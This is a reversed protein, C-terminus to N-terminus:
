KVIVELLAEVIKDGLLQRKEPTIASLEEKLSKVSKVALEMAQISLQAQPAPNPISNDGEHKFLTDSTVQVPTALARIVDLDERRFFYCRSTAGRYAKVKGKIIWKRLTSDTVGTLKVAEPMSVYNAIHGSYRRRANKKVEM